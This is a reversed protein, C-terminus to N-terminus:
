ATAATRELAANVSRLRDAIWGHRAGVEGPWPAFFRRDTEDEISRRLEHGRASVALTDGRVLGDARLRALAARVDGPDQQPLVAPLDPESEAERRWVRTLVDFVPGSFGAERWASMHCDDRAQWLGFVADELAVLPIREDGFAHRTRRMHDKPVPSGAIADFAARLLRALERVEEDPITRLTALYADAEDRVRRALARGAATARWRDGIEEVLGAGRAAAAPALWQDFRTPYPNFLDPFSAGTDDRLAVANVVFLLTPRDIGLEDVIRLPATFGARRRQLFAPLLTAIETPYPPEIRRNHARRRALSSARHM